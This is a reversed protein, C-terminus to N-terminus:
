NAQFPGRIIDNSMSSYYISVRVANRPQSCLGHACVGVLQHELGTSTRSAAPRNEFEANEQYCLSRRQGM